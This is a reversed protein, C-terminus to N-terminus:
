AKKFMYKDILVSFPIQIIYAFMIPVLMAVGFTGTSFTSIVLALTIYRTISHWFVAREQPSELDYVLRALAFVAAYFAIVAIVSIYILEPEFDYLEFLSQSSQLGFLYFVILFISINSILGQKASIFEKLPKIFIIVRSVIFPIVILLYIVVKAFNSINVGDEYSEGFYDSTYIGFTHLMLLSLTVLVINIFLLIFGISTDSSSNKIWHMVMGGGSLVSLLFLGAAIGFSDTLLGIGLAILPLAIYNVLMAKLMLTKYEFVLKIDSLKVNFLTPMVLTLGAFLCIKQSFIFGYYYQGYTLGLIAAIIISILKM